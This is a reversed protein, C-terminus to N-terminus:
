LMANKNLRRLYNKTATELRAKLEANEKELSEIKAKLKKNKAKFTRKSNKLSENEAQLHNIGAILSDIFANEAEYM